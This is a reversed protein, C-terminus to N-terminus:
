KKMQEFSDEEVGWEQECFQENSSNLLLDVISKASDNASILVNNNKMEMFFGYSPFGAQNKKDRITDQMETDVAGPRISGVFINKALLEAKYTNYVM